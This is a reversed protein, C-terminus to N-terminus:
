KKQNKAIDKLCWIVEKFFNITDKLKNYKWTGEPPRKNPEEITLNNETISEPMGYLRFTPYDTSLVLSFGRSAKTDFPFRKSYANYYISLVDDM